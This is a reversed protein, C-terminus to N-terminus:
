SKVAPGTAKFTVVAGNSEVKGITVFSCSHKGAALPAIGQASVKYTGHWSKLPFTGGTKSFTGSGFDATFYCTKLIPTWTAPPPANENTSTGPAPVHHLTITGDSTHWTVSGAGPGGGLNFPKITASVAGTLTAESFALPANSSSNFNAAAAAGSVSASLTETAPTNAGASSSSSSSCGAVSVAAIAAIVAVGRLATKDKIV